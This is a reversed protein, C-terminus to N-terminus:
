RSEQKERTNNRAYTDWGKENCYDQLNKFSGKWREIEDAAKLALDRKEDENLGHSNRLKHLIEKTKM